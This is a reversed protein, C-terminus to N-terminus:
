ELTRTEPESETQLGRATAFGLVGTISLAALFKGRM